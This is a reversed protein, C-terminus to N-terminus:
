GQLTAKLACHFHLPTKRKAVTLADNRMVEYAAM